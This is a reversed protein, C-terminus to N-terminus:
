KQTSQKTEPREPREKSQKPRESKDKSRDNKEKHWPLEPVSFFYNHIGDAEKM